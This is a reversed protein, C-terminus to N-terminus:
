NIKLSQHLGIPLLVRKIFIQLSLILQSFYESLRFKILVKNGVSRSNVCFTDYVLM